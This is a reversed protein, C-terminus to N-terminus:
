PCYDRVGNLTDEGGGEPMAAVTPMMSTSALRDDVTIVYPQIEMSVHQKTVLFDRKTSICGEM